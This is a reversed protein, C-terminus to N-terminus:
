CVPELLSKPVVLSAFIYKEIDLGPGFAKTFSSVWAGDKLYDLAGDVSPAKENM